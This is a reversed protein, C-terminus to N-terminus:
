DIRVVIGAGVVGTSSVNFNIAVNRTQRTIGISISSEGRYYGSGVALYLGPRDPTNMSQFASLGAIGQRYDSSMRDLEYDFRELGLEVTRLRADGNFDDGALGREGRFGRVGRAGSAGDSGSSGTSGTAGDSGSSGTAGTAGTAGPTLEIADLEEQTAMDMYIIDTGQTSYTEYHEMEDINLSGSSAGHNLEYINGDEDIGIYNNPNAFAISTLIISILIVWIKNV